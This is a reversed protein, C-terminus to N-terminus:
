DEKKLYRVYEVCSLKSRELMTEYIEDRLRERAERMSLDRSPYFPGDIYSVARPKKSFRRKQYTTTMTFIPANLECPLSLTDPKFNRIGVYYPWIHAEPYVTVCGGKDIVRKVATKFSRAAKITDPLPLAGLYPTIAGLVPMSVNNPHVVMYIDKPFFAVNPMFADGIQQTHNSYIFYGGHFKKLKERGVTKHGLSLKSYFFAIPFFIIRYLVFRTLRYFFGFTRYKYKEDIKRPTIKADSFEDSESEYYVTKTPYPTSNDKKKM